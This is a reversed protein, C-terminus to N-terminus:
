GFLLLQQGGIKDRKAINCKRCTCQCNDRTHTGGKSLPIIHDLNPYLDHYETFTPRVKKGCIQCRWGDRIFIEISNFKEVLVNKKLARRRSCWTRRQQRVQKKKCGDCYSQRRPNPYQKGCVICVTNLRGKVPRGHMAKYACGSNCYRQGKRKTTFERGCYECRIAIPEPKAKPPHYFRGKCKESCFRPSAGRKNTPCFEKGCVLCTKVTMRSM